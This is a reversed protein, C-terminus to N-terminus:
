ADLVKPYSTSLGWVMSGVRLSSISQIHSYKREAVLGGGPGLSDSGLRQGRPAPSDASCLDGVKARRGATAKLGKATQMREDRPDGGGRNTTTRGYAVQTEAAVQPGMLSLFSCPERRSLSIRWSQPQAGGPGLKRKQM